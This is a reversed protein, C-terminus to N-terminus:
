WSGETITVENLRVVNGKSWAEAVLEERRKMAAIEQRRLEAIEADVEAIKAAEQPRLKRMVAKLGAATPPVHASSVGSENRGTARLVKGENVRVAVVSHDWGDGKVVTFMGLKGTAKTKRRYNVVVEAAQHIKRDYGKVLYPYEKDEVVIGKGISGVM